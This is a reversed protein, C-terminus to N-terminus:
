RNLYYDYAVLTDKYLLEKPIKKITFELCYLMAADLDEYALKKTENYEEMYSAYNRNPDLFDALYIIKELKTMRENGTTHYKISELIEEDIIGYDFKAVYYGLHSHLVKPYNELYDLSINHEKCFERSQEKTYEKACDHLLAAIEAKNVDVGYKIALKIAVEKVGLTHVYREDSLSKSLKKIIEEIEM